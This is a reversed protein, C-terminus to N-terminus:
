QQDTEAAPASSPELDKPADRNLAVAGASGQNLHVLQGPAPTVMQQQRALEELRQAQLLESERAELLKQENMLKQQEQQLAQVQYGALMTAVNPAFSTLLVVTVTALAGITSWCEGQERPNVQRVLRKNDVAKKHFYLEEFPLARLAYPNASATRVGAASEVRRFLMTALTAM